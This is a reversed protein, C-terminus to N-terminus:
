NSLVLAHSHQKILNSEKKRPIHMVRECMDGDNFVNKEKRATKDILKWESVSM